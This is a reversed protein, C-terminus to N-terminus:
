YHQFNLRDAETADKPLIYPVNAMYRRTGFWISAVGLPRTPRPIPTNSMVVPGPYASAGAGANLGAFPQDPKPLPKGAKPPEQNHPQQFKKKQFLNFFSM